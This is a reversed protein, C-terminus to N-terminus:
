IAPGTGTTRSINRRIAASKVGLVLLSMGIIGTLVSVLSSFLISVPYNPCCFTPSPEAQKVLSMSAGDFREAQAFLFRKYSRALANALRASADPNSTRAAIGIEGPATRGNINIRIKKRLDSRFEPSGAERNEVPMGKIASDLDQDAVLQELVQDSRLMDAHTEASEKLAVPDGVRVSDGPLIVRITATSEYLRPMSRTILIGAFFVIPALALLIIGPIILLM